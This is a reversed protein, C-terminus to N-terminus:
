APSMPNSTLALMVMCVTAPLVPRSTVVHAAAIAVIGANLRYVGAYGANDAMISSAQWGFGGPLLKSVMIELTYPIRGKTTVTSVAEETDAQKSPTATPAQWM